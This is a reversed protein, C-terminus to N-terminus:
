LSKFGSRGKYKPGMVQLPSKILAQKSQWSADQAQVFKLTLYRVDTQSQVSGHADASSYPRARHGPQDSQLNSAPLPLGARTARHGNARLPGNLPDDRRKANHPSTCRIDGEIRCPRIFAQAVRHVIRASVGQHGPGVDEIAELHPGFPNVGPAIRGPNGGGRCEFSRWDIRFAKGVDDIGGSRRANGLAHLNGVGVEGMENAPVPLCELDGSTIAGAVKGAESKIGSDPLNPRIQSRARGHADDIVIKARRRLQNLLPHNPLTHRDAKHGSDVGSRHHGERPWSFRFQPKQQGTAVRQVMRRGGPQGEIDHVVIPRRFAGHDSSGTQELRSSGPHGRNTM